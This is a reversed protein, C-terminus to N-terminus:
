GKFAVIKKIIMSGIAMMVLSGAIMMKGMSSEWLIKMYEGNVLYIALGMLFPMAVLVYASARGQATLAKVKKTFQQRQRVTDAVLDLIDALSGGVTRQINVAMVVFGFNTSNMRRAMADMAQEAPMGLQVEALVRAFEKSTPEAGENVASQMAQNFAHGAKLSAAMTILTEPLQNEFANMRQKAKFRVFLVPLMFGIVVAVLAFIGRRGLGFAAITGVLLGTGIQIYYLEATRLPLDAQELMRSIKKWWKMTGIIKETAIFLQHLLSLRAKDPDVEALTAAASKQETFPAIRKRLIVSPKATLLAITAILVFLAALAAVGFRGTDGAPIWSSGPKQPEVFTGPAKLTQTTGTFGPANVALAISTGAPATSEYTITYTSGLKESIAGYVSSLASSSSASSYSGGTERAMRSLAQTAAADTAVGIPYIRVEADAAAALADSLKVTDASSAGDSLLVVIRKDSSSAGLDKAALALAGYLATGPKQSIALQSVATVTQTRDRGIPAATYPQDGFGYVGIEANPDQKQVFASAAATADKLKTGSMSRSTDIVLAIAPPENPDSISMASAKKGNETLELAAQQGPSHSEVTVKVTPFAGTDVKVIQLSGGAASASAAVMLTMLLALAAVARRIM